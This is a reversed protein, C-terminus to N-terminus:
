SGAVAGVVVGASSAGRPASVAPLHVQSRRDGHVRRGSVSVDVRRVQAHLDFHWSVTRTDLRADVGIEGSRGLVFLVAGSSRVRSALRRADSQRCSPSAVAVVDIGDVLAGVALPWSRAGGSSVCLTRQLAVGHERASQLGAHEMDVMAFWSGERTASSVLSFLLSVQADGTCGYIRGRELGGAPFLSQLTPPVPMIGHGLAGRVVMTRSLEAVTSTGNVIGSSGVM